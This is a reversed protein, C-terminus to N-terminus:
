TAVKCIFLCFGFLLGTTHLYFPKPDVKITFTNLGNKINQIIISISDRLIPHKEGSPWYKANIPDLFSMYETDIPTDFMKEWIDSKTVQGVLVESVYSM